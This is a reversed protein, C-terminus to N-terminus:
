HISFRFFYKATEIFGYLGLVIFAFGGGVLVIPHKVITLPKKLSLLFDSTLLMHGLLVGLTFGFVNIITFLSIYGAFDDLGLIFPITFSFVIL